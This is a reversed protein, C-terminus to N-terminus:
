LDSGKGWAILLQTINRKSDDMMPELESILMGVSDAENRSPVVVSLIPM